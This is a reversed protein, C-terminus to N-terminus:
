PVLVIKGYAGPELVERHARAAEALPLEKGVVPRLTGAELGAGLAAHISVHEAPSINFATMGHISADRGMAQRPDIEVRGRSGVVVVRGFRALVGLDRDLNVNALMEIIVDVGRGETLSMLEELYGPARHDLVHHAGEEAVLRRGEETGGTGFVTMGAARALQVAATGVGGSAGHVLVSEGPRANARGFLARHATVYPVGLATGQAFSIKDPLPHVQAEECLALEAYTGTVSGAVYVRDGVKFRKVEAGISEVTGAGDSGPTYPLQPTRAYAGSRIYTEVPNVGVARVRVVLQTAGPQPDNVEELRMVEPEGFEHVRIAKM